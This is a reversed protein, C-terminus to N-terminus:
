REHHRANETEDTRQDARHAPASRNAQLIHRHAKGSLVMYNHRSKKSRQTPNQVTIPWLATM